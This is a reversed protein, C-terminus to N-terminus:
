FARLYTKEHIFDIYLYIGTHIRLHAILNSHSYFGKDCIICRHHCDGSHTLRHGALGKSKSFSKGCTECNYKRNNSNYQTDMSHCVQTDMSNCMRTDMSNCAQTDMSHSAKDTRNYEQDCAECKYERTDGNNRMDTNNFAKTDMSNCAQTDMSNSAQTDMSHSAKDTGNFTYEQDSAECKYERTDGNNQKNMNNDAIDTGKYEQDCTESKYETKIGNDTYQIDMTNRAKDTM